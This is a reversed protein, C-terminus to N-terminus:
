APADVFNLGITSALEEALELGEALGDVAPLAEARGVVLLLVRHSLARPAGDEGGGDAHELVRLEWGGVPLVRREGGGVHLVADVGCRHVGCVVPAHGRVFGEVGDLRVEREKFDPAAGRVRVNRRALAGFTLALQLEVRARARGDEDAVRAPELGPAEVVGLRALVKDGAASDEVLADVARDGRELQQVLM